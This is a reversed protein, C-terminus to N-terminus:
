LIDYVYCMLGRTATIATDLQKISGSAANRPNAFLLEWAKAREANLREFASKPMVIEGRLHLEEQYPITKPVSSIVQINATIDEGTMGDGRTIAQVFRGEKYILEVSIGDYKPEILFNLNNGDRWTKSLLRSISEHWDQIDEANYTNDLSLLPKRHSAKRFESQKSSQSQLWQTPSTAVIWEPHLAEIKKLDDFLRDYEADSIESTSQNYYLDNHHAIIQILNLYDSHTYEM